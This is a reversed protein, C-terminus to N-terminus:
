EQSDDPAAHHVWYTRMNGKGKIPLEGRDFLPIEPAQKKLLRMARETCLMHNAVSASEMRAACNVTDGFLSFRLNRIGIVNGEVPGSDFGVRISIYGKREDELDLLTEAAVRMAALGFQAARGAHDVSQKSVLNTVGVYADGITEVKYVGFQMSLSDFSCYLRHLMNSVKGPPLDECFETFGVIDMFVVTAEESWQPRLRQGDRIAEAVARPFIDFLVSGIRQLQLATDTNWDGNNDRGGYAVDPSTLLSISEAQGSTMGKCGSTLERSWFAASCWRAASARLPAGCRGAGALHLLGGACALGASLLMVALAVPHCGALAVVFAATPHAVM